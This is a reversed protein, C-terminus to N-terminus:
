NDVALQWNFSKDKTRLGQDKTKSSLALCSPGLVLFVFEADMAYDDFDGTAVLTAHRLECWISDSGLFQSVRTVEHCVLLETRLRLGL